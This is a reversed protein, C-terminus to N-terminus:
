QAPPGGRGRGPGPIGTQQLLKLQWGGPMAAWVTSQSQHRMAKESTGDPHKQELTINAIGRIIAGGPFLVVTTPEEREIGLIANNPMDAIYEAKTDGHGNGHIYVADDAMLKAVGAADGAIRADWFKKELNLAEEKTITPRSESKGQAESSQVLGPIGFAAAIFVAVAFFSIVRKMSNQLAEEGRIENQSRVTARCSPVNRLM